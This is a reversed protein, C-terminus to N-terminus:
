NAEFRRYGNKVPVISTKKVHVVKERRKRTATLNYFLKAAWRRLGGVLSHAFVVELVFNYFGMESENDWVVGFPRPTTEQGAEPLSAANM